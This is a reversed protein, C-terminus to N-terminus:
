VHIGVLLCVLAAAIALIRLRHLASWRAHDRRLKETFGGADIRAIRNNIPVLLLLTLVIVAAWIVAAAVVPAFGPQNHRVVAEALILLLSLAYWFPMAAGLRSAFRQMAQAEAGAELRSVVPHIFLSVSLETGVMLGVCVIAAIDLVPQM